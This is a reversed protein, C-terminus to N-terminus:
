RLNPTQYFERSYCLSGPEKLHKKLVSEIQYKNVVFEENISAESILLEALKKISLWVSGNKHLLYHVDREWEIAERTFFDYGVLSNATFIEKEILPIIEPQYKEEKDSKFLFRCPLRKNRHKFDSILQAMKVMLYARLREAYFIINVMAMEGSEAYQFSSENFISSEITYNGDLSIRNKKIKSVRIDFLYFMTVCAAVDYCLSERTQNFPQSQRM